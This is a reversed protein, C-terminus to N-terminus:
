GTEVTLVLLDSYERERKRRLKLEKKQVIATKNKIGCRTQTNEFFIASYVIKQVWGHQAVLWIITSYNYTFTHTHTYKMEEWKQLSIFTWFNSYTLIQMYKQVYIISNIINKCAIAKKSKVSWWLIFQIRCIYKATQGNEIFKMRNWRMRDMLLGYLIIKENRFVFMWCLLYNAEIHHHNRTSLCKCIKGTIQKQVDGDWRVAKKQTAIM